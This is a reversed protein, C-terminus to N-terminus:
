HILASSLIFRNIIMALEFKLVLKQEKMILDIVHFGWMVAFIEFVDKVYFFGYNIWYFWKSSGETNSKEKRWKTRMILKMDANVGLNTRNEKKDEGFLM